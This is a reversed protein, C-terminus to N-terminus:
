IKKEINFGSIQVNFGKKKWFKQAKLNNTRVFSGIKKCNMKKFYSLLFGVLKSGYGKGRAKKSIILNHIVGIKEGNSIKIGCDVLGLIKSEEELLFIKVEKNRLFKLTRQKIEKTSDKNVSKDLNNEYLDYEVYLPIINPIDKKVAERIIM